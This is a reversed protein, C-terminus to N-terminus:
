KVIDATVKLKPIGFLLCNFESFEVELNTVGKGHYERISSSIMESPEPMSIPITFLRFGYKSKVIHDGVTLGNDEIQSATYLDKPIVEKQYYACGAALLLILALTVLLPKM